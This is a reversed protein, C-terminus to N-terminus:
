DVGVGRFTLAVESCREPSGILSSPDGDRQPTMLPTSASSLDRQSVIM